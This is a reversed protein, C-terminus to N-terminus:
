STQTRQGTSLDLPRPLRASECWSVECGPESSFHGEEYIGVNENVNGSAVAWRSVEDVTQTVIDENAPYGRHFQDDPRPVTMILSNDLLENRQVRDILNRFWYSLFGDAPSATSLTM